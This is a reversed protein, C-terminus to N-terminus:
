SEEPILGRPLSVNILGGDLDIDKIFEKVAPVLVEGYRGRVVYTDHAATTFLDDLCGINGRERDIIDLGKLQGWYYEDVDLDPLDMAALLVKAGIMEKARDISEFGRFRLLVQGKHIVQRVIEVTRRIGSPFQLFVAEAILLPDPNGSHLHVKVDGRLGHAGCIRGIELETESFKGM